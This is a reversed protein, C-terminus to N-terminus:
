MVTFISYVDNEHLYEAYFYGKNGALKHTEESAEEYSDFRRLETEGDIITIHDGEKFADPHSEIYERYIRESKAIRENQQKWWTDTDNQVNMQVNLVSDVTPTTTQM